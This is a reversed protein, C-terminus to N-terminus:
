LVDMWGIASCGLTPGQGGEVEAGVSTYKTRDAELRLENCM